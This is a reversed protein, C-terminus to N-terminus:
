NYKSKILKCQLPWAHHPAATTHLLTLVQLDATKCGRTLCGVLCVQEGGTHDATTDFGRRSVRFNFAKLCLM